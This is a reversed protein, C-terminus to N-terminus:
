PEIGEAAIFGDTTAGDKVLRAPWWVRGDADVADGTIELRDGSEVFMLTEFSRGPGARFRYSEAVVRAEGGTHLTANDATLGPVTDGAFLLLLALMLNVVGIAVVLRWLGRRLRNAHRLKRGGARYLAAAAQSGRIPRSQPPNSVMRADASDPPALRA